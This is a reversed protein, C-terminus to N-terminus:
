PRLRKPSLYKPVCPEITGVVMVVVAQAALFSTDRCERGTLRMQLGKRDPSKRQVASCGLSVTKSVTQNAGFVLLGISALVILWLLWTPQESLLSQPVIDALM